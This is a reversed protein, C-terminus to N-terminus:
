LECMKYRLCMCVGDYAYTFLLTRVYLVCKQPHTRKIRNNVIRKGYRFTYIFHLALPAAVNLCYLCQLSYLFCIRAPGYRGCMYRWNCVFMIVIMTCCCMAVSKPVPVSIHLNILIFLYICVPFMCICIERCIYILHMYFWGIYIRSVSCWNAFILIPKANEVFMHQPQSAAVLAIYM